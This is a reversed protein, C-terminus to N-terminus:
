KTQDVDIIEGASSPGDIRTMRLMKIRMNPRGWPRRPFNPPMMMARM